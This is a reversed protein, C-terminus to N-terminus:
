NADLNMTFHEDVATEGDSATAIVQLYLDLDLPLQASVSSGNGFPNTYSQGDYSYYWAYTYPGIGGSASASWTYTGSNNGKTPGSTSVSMAPYTSSYAIRDYSSFGNWSNLATGGNMVSNPDPNSGSNPTGSIGIGASEGLGSWNTHRFGVCHGLEHAMNYKKQGTTFVRNNDTNLNIRIQYGSNGSAPWEAAALVWGGVPGDYLAGADDRVTIDAPGSTVYQMRIRSNSIANIEAIAQQVETRWDDDGSTPISSDVFVTINRQNALSVLDSVRAQETRGDPISITNVPQYEHLKDKRLLIDNEVLYFEGMSKMGTVDFGLAEILDKDQTPVDQPQMEDQSCSALLAIFLLILCSRWRFTLREYMM